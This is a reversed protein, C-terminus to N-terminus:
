RNLLREFVRHDRFATLIDEPIKEHFEEESVWAARDHEDSLVVTTSEARAAYNLILYSKGKDAVNMVTAYMLEDVEIKLGTEEFVERKLAQTLTENMDVKGGPCEWKPYTGTRHVILIRNQDMICAKVVVIAELPNM